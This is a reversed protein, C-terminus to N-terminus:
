YGRPSVGRPQYYYNGGQQQQFWRRGFLGRRRPPPQQQYYRGDFWPPVGYGYGRPQKGPSAVKPGEGGPTTGSLVVQTNQLGSEEVLAFLTAANEPSLRVCGHSAPKGLRKVELTGHIAHGQKTFFVAHPMPANDWQKSYWIKNMSSATYTGSPTSYGSQGTSVPWSYKEVGDVFVTMEQSSKDINVLISAKPEEPIAPQEASTGPTEPSENNEGAAPDDTADPSEPAGNQEGAAENSEGTSPTAEGQPSSTGPTEASPTSASPNTEASAPFALMVALFAAALLSRVPLSSALLRMDKLGQNRLFWRGAAEYIPTRRPM